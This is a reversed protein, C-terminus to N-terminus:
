AISRLIMQVPSRGVEAGTRADLPVRADYRPATPVSTAQADSKPDHGLNIWFVVRYTTVDNTRVRVVRRPALTTMLRDDGKVIPHLELGVGL